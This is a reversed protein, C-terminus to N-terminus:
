VFDAVLERFRKRLTVHTVSFQDALEKQTPRGDPAARCYAAYVAAAAVGSPHASGGGPYASALRCARAVVREDVGRGEAWEEVRREADM